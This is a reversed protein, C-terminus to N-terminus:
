VVVTVLSELSGSSQAIVLFDSEEPFFHKWM